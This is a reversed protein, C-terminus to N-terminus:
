FQQTSCVQHFFFWGLKDEASKESFFSGIYKPNSLLRNTLFDRNQYVTIMKIEQEESECREAFDPFQHAMEEMQECFIQSGVENPSYSMMKNFIAIYEKRFQEYTM